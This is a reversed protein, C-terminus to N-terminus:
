FRYTLFMRYTRGFLPRAEDTTGMGNPALMGPVVPNGETFTEQNTLNAVHFQLSLRASIDWLVGADLTYFAPYETVDLDTSSSFRKSYYHFQAYTKLPLGTLPKMDWSPELNVNVAALRQPVRGDESVVVNQYGTTVGNALVAETQTYSSGHVKPDQLTVDAKLDLGPVIEPKEDFEIETGFNTIGYSYSQSVTPCASDSVSIGTVVCSSNLAQYTNTLTRPLFNNYFFATTITLDRSFYRVGGEFQWIHEVGSDNTPYPQGSEELQAYGVADNFSPLRFSHSALGYVAINNSVAYNAGLNWGIGTYRNDVYWPHGLATDLALGFPAPAASTGNANTQLASAPLDDVAVNRDWYTLNIKEQEWRVGADINLRGDLTNWHDEIYGAFDDVDASAANGGLSPVYTGNLTLPPGSQQGAANVEYLNVLSVPSDATTVVLSTTYDYSDSYYSHYGGVTLHHEGYFDFDKQINVDQVISQANSHVIWPILFTLNDSAPVPQNNGVFFAGVGTTGGAAMGNDQGFQARVQNFNAFGANLIPQSYNQIFQASSVPTFYATDIYRNEASANDPTGYAAQWNANFAPQLIDNVYRNELFTQSNEIDNNYFLGSFGSQGGTYRASANVTWGNDLERSYKVTLVSFKPHIGDNMDAQYLGNPGMMTIYRDQPSLWSGNNFNLGIPQTSNQNFIVPNSPTGSNAPTPIEVPLDQYFATRDNIYQGYVTFTTKGDDTKYQINGRMEGGADAVLGTDRLGNSTRYFGGVAFTLNKTIPGSFGIDNRMYGYNALEEKFIGEFQDGGTKSIWNTTAGLGNSYLVGGPGGKVVELHDIMVDNDIFVDNNMFPIDPEQFVPLGDVLQPAYRFGGVAPLGRVTVNNSKEGATSGEAFFGPINGLLDATSIPALQAIEAQNLTNITFTADKKKTKKTVATVVVVTSDDTTPQAAKAVPAPAASASQAVASMPALTFIAAALAGMSSALALMKRSAIAHRRRTPNPLSRM